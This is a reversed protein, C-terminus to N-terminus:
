SATGTKVMGVAKLLAQNQEAVGITVRV